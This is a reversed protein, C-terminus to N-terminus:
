TQCHHSKRPGVLIRTSRMAVISIAQNTYVVSQTLPSKEQWLPRLPCPGAKSDHQSTGFCFFLKETTIKEKNYFFCISEMNGHTQEIISRLLRSFTTLVDTVYEAIAEHAM